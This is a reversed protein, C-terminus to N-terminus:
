GGLKPTPTASANGPNWVSVAESASFRRLKGTIKEDLSFTIMLLAGIHGEPQETECSEKGVLKSCFEDSVQETGSKM